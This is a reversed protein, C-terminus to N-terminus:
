KIFYMKTVFRKYQVGDNRDKILLLKTATLEDIRWSDNGIFVQYPNIVSFDVESLGGAVSSIKVRSTMMFEHYDVATGTYEVTSALTSPLPDYVENVIRSVMWKGMIREEAEKRQEPATSEKKCSTLALTVLCVMSFFLTRM